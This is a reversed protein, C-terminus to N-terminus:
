TSSARAMSLERMSKCMVGGGGPLGEPIGAREAQARLHRNVRHM